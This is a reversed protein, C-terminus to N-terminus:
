RGLIGKLLDMPKPMRRGQREGQAPSPARRKDARHVPGHGAHGADGHGGVERAAERGVGAGLAGEADAPRPPYALNLENGYAIVRLMAGEGPFVGKPVACQTTAPALLVKERLWRDM